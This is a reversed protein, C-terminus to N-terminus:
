VGSVMDELENVEMELCAIYTDKNVKSNVKVCHGSENHQCKLCKKPTELAKECNQRIENLEVVLTTNEKSLNDNDIRLKEVLAVEIKIDNKLYEIEQLAKSIADCESRCLLGTKKRLTNLAKWENM